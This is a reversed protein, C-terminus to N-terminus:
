ILGEKTKRAGSATELPSGAYLLEHLEDGLVNRVTAPMIEEPPIKSRLLVYSSAVLRERGGRSLQGAVRARELMGWWRKLLRSRIREYEKENLGDVLEATGAFGLWPAELLLRATALARGESRAADCAACSAKQSPDILAGCTDCAKWGASRKSQTAAEVHRAFQALAEQASASPVPEGPLRAPNAPASAARPANRKPLVGVRFRLRAVGAAPLRAAVAALVRDALFSL